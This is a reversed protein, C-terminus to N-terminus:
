KWFLPCNDPKEALTREEYGYDFRLSGETRLEELKMGNAGCVLTKYYVDWGDLDDYHSYKEHSSQYRCEGCNQPMEVINAAIGGMVSSRIYIEAKKLMRAQYVECLERVSDDSNHEKSKELMETVIDEINIKALENRSLDSFPDAIGQYEVCEVSTETWNEYDSYNV